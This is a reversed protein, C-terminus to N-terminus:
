AVGSLDVRALVFNPRHKRPAPQFRISVSNWLQPASGGRVDSPAGARAVNPARFQGPHKFYKQAHPNGALARFVAGPAPASGEAESNSNFATVLPETVWCGMCVFSSVQALFLCDRARHNLRLHNTFFSTGRALCGMLWVM